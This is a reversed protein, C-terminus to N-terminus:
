LELTQKYYTITERIGDNLDTFNFDPFQQKFLTNDLIKIPAGDPKNTDFVLKGKYEAIACIREAIDAISYGQKQALNVPKNTLKSQQLAMAFLRAIDKVFIWERLPKGSGWITFTPQKNHKAQLMRIVLGNLAHTRNPDTYDGPGYANPVIVNISRVNHQKRYCDATVLLMRKANAFSWVSEHVAGNWYDPEKQIDANGPYSCNSVPNLLLATPCAEQIARYLNLIMCLNDHLVTAAFESVYHLSGVHAACNIIADPNINALIQATARADVLDLGNKRSLPLAEHGLDQMHRTVHKGVFGFGGLVAIKMNSPTHHM